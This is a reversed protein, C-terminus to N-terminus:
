NKKKRDRSGGIKQIKSDTQKYSGGCGPCTEDTERPNYILWGCYNCIVVSKVWEPFVGKELNWSIKHM